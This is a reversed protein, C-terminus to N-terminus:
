PLKWESRFLRYSEKDLLVYVPHARMDLQSIMWQLRQSSMTTCGATAKKGKQRWIHFFIASGYGPLAKGGLMSDNHAIYLKLSHAFDNQRMQAKKEWVTHPVHNLIIHRNYYPSKRDEVWLDRPGVQRYSVSSHAHIRSAYGYVGGLAFVGAPARKDGERKISFGRPAKVKHLGRGWALGKAGIRGKWSSGRQRWEGREKYFLSLTVFSSDPHEVVGLILQQSELPIQALLPLGLMLCLLHGYVWCRLM